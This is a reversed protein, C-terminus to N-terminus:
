KEVENRVHFLMERVFTKAYIGMNKDIHKRQKLTYVSGYVEWVRFM